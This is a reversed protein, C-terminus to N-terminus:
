IDREGISIDECVQPLIDETLGAPLQQLRQHSIGRTNVGSIIQQIWPVFYSTRSYVEKVGYKGIDGGEVRSSIGYVIGLKDQFMYAPGGSDGGGGGSVGELPLAENGENFDFKLLPGKAFTVNNQAKRMQGKNEYNDVTQGTLGNGTGGIGIFWLNKDLENSDTNIAFPIVDAVPERLQILAIDHSKGPKYDKHIYVNEVNVLNGNILISSDPSVCFTAHAATIIWSPEILTGHAGDFYFTALQPITNEKVKYEEDPVDHRIVIAHASFTLCCIFLLFYRM